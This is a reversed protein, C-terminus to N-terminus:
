QEEQSPILTAHDFSPAASFSAYFGEVFPTAYSPDNVLFTPPMEEGPLASLGSILPGVVAVQRDVLIFSDSVPALKVSAGALSLSATYSAPDAVSEAPTLIYVAVGRKVVAVRLADAVGSSRLLSAAVMLEESATSITQVVESEDTLPQANPPLWPEGTQAFSLSTLVLGLFALLQLLPTM